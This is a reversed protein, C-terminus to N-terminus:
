SKKWFYEIGCKGRIGSIPPSLKDISVSVEEIMNWRGSIIECIKEAVSELLFWEKSMEERIIDYLDAYSVSTDLCESRFGAGDFEASVSVEFDNGVAREQEFVGICSYFRLGDLNIRIRKCDMM